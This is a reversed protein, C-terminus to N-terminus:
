WISFTQPLFLSLYTGITLFPGFPIYEDKKTIGTIILLIGVISGILSGIFLVIFAKQFGLAAGIGAIYKIDGGGLAEKKLLKSGIKGIAFM